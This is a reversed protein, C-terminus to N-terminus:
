ESARELNLATPWGSVMGSTSDGSASAKSRAASIRREQPTFFTMLESFYVRQERCEYSCISAHRHVSRPRKKSFPLGETALAGSPMGTFRARAPNASLCDNRPKKRGGTKGQAGGGYMDTSM